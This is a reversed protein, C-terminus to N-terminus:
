RISRLTTVLVPVVTLLLFAPLVLFVLPFLMKVPAKRAREAVLARRTERDEAAIDALGEVLSSGISDSRALVGVARRLDPLDMRVAVDMLEDRWRGGLDSRTLATRVEDALPGEIAEASRRVALQGSLGAASSAALLDLFLPIERDARRRRRRAARDLLLDPAVFGAAAAVPVLLVAVPAVIAALLGSGGASLWKAGVVGEVTRAAGASTLRAAVRDPRALRRLVPVSGVRRLVSLADVGGAPASVRREISRDQRVAGALIVFMVASGALLPAAVREIM